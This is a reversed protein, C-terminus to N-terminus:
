MGKLYAEMVRGVSELVGANEASTFLSELASNFVDKELLIKKNKAIMYCRADYYNGIDSSVGKGTLDVWMLTRPVISIRHFYAFRLAFDWDELSRMKEDFGGIDMFAEKKVVITPAGVFNRKALENFCNEPQDLMVHIIGEDTQADYWHTFLDTDPHDKKFLAVEKLKDSDWIDDSDQFAVWMERALNVGTNRAKGAGGNTDHKHYRIRDDDLMLEGVIEKTNDTSCDDVVILEKINFFKGDGEQNLASNVAKKISFARNYTPIVISLDM